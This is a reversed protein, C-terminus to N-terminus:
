GTRRSLQLQLVLARNRLEESPAGNEEEDM